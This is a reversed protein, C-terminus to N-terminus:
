LKSMRPFVTLPWGQVVSLKRIQKLNFDSRGRCPIPFKGNQGGGARPTTMLYTNQIYTIVNIVRSNLTQDYSNAFKRKKVM